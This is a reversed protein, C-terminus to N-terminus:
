ELKLIEQFVQQNTSTFSSRSNSYPIQPKSSYIPKYLGIAKKFEEYKINRSSGIANQFIFFCPCEPQSKRVNMVEAALTLPELNESAFLYSANILISNAKELVEFDMEKLEKLYIAHQKHVFLDNNMFYKAGSRMSNYYDIGIYDFEVKENTYQHVHDIFALASTAPGCGIDIFKVTGPSQYLTLFLDAREFLHKAAFFHMRMNCYAYLRVMDLHSLDDVAKDFDTQGFNIINSKIEDFSYGLLLRSWYTRPDTKIPVLIKEQFLRESWLTPEFIKEVHPNHELDIEFQELNDQYFRLIPFEDALSNSNFLQVFEDLEGTKVNNASLAQSAYGFYTHIDRVVENEYSEDEDNLAASIKELYKPLSSIHDRYHNYLRYHMWAELRNRLVSPNVKNICNSVGSRNNSRKFYLGLQGYLFQIQPSSRQVEDATVNKQSLHKLITRFQGVEPEDSTAQIFLIQLQRRNATVFDIIEDMSLLIFRPVLDGIRM